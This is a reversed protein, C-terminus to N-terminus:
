MKRQKNIWNIIQRRMSQVPFNKGSIWRLMSTRSIRLRDAIEQITLGFDKQASELAKIFEEDTITM